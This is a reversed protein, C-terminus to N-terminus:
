REKGWNMQKFCHKKWKREMVKSLILQPLMIHWVVQSCVSISDSYRLWTKYSIMKVLQILLSNDWYLSTMEGTHSNYRKLPVDRLKNLSLSAYISRYVVGNNNWIIAQQRDQTLGYIQVLAPMTDFPGKLVFKLSIKISIWVNENLFICKFISAAFYRGNQRPQFTNVQFSAHQHWTM